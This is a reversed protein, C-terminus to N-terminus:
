ERKEDFSHLHSREDKLYGQDVCGMQIVQHAGQKELHLASCRLTSGTTVTDDILLINQCKISMNGIWMFEESSLLLREEKPILDQRVKQAQRKLLMVFPRQLLKAVEKGLMEAINDGLHLRRLLHSPVATILDPIPYSSKTYQIVMYAALLSALQPDPHTKLKKILIVPPGRGPFTVMIPSLVRPKLPELYSLCRQCLYVGLQDHLLKCYLCQPPFLQRVIKQLFPNQSLHQLIPHM